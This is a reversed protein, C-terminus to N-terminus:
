IVKNTVADCLQVFEPISLSGRMMNIQKHVLQINDIAYGIDNDIRDISATHDWGVRSWGISLGSLACVRDQEEYLDNILEPCLDWSYGRTLASKYFSEYWSLRVSGCMGSPHNNKNSCRKCPQKIHHANICYARRLHSVETDCQPCYRIWRKDASKFVNEPLEFMKAM